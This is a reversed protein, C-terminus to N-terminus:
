MLWENLRSREFDLKKQYFERSPPDLRTIRGAENYFDTDIYGAKKDGIEMFCFGKGDIYVDYLMPDNYQHAYVNYFHSRNM